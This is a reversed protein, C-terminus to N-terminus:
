GPISECGGPETTSDLVKNMQELLMPIEREIRKRGTTVVGACLAAGALAGLFLLVGRSHGLALQVCGTVVLGMLAIPFAVLVVPLQVRSGSSPGLTGTLTTGGGAAQEVRCELVPKFGRPSTRFLSM